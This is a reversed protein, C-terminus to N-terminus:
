STSIPVGKFVTTCSSPPPKLDLIFATCMPPGKPPIIGTSLTLSRVTSTSDKACFPKKSPCAETIHMWITEWHDLIEFVQKFKRGMFATSFTEWTPQARGAPLFHDVFGHM